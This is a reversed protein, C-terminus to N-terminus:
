DKINGVRRALAGDRCANFAQSYLRCELEVGIIGFDENLVVFFSTQRVIINRFGGCSKQSAGGQPTSSL